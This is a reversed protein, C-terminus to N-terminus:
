EFVAPETPTRDRVVQLEIEGLQEGFAALASGVKIREKPRVAEELIERIEAETSRGHQAARLKLARHTEDPINRITVASM